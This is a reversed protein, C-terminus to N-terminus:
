GTSVSASPVYTPRDEMVDCLSGCFVRERQGAREAARNWALSKRWYADRHHLRPADKGWHVGHYFRQDREEAYCKKCGDSVEACGQWPNHVHDTWEIDTTKM